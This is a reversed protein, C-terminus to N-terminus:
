AALDILHVPLRGAVPRPRSGPIPPHDPVREPKTLDPLIAVLEDHHDTKWRQLWTGSTHLGTITVESGYRTFTVGQREMDDILKKVRRRNTSMTVGM